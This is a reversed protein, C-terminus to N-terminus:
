KLPFPIYAGCIAPPGLGRTDTWAAWGATKTCDVATYDGIRRGRSDPYGNHPNLPVRSTFVPTTQQQELDWVAYNYTGNGLNQYAGALSPCNGASQLFKGTKADGLPTGKPNKTLKGISIQSRNNIADRWQWILQPHSKGPIVIAYPESLVLPSTSIRSCPGCDTVSVLNGVSTLTTKASWSIGDQSTAFWLEGNPLSVSPEFWTVAIESENGGVTCFAALPGALTKATSWLQGDDSYAVKLYSNQDDFNDTWCAVLRTYGNPGKMVTISPHDELEPGFRPASISPPAVLKTTAVTLNSAFGSDSRAVFVATLLVQNNPIPDDQLIDGLCSYFLEGQLGFRVWPDGLPTFGGPLALTGGATWTQGGDITEKWGCDVRTINGSGDTTFQNFGVVAHLPKTPDAALSPETSFGTFIPFESPPALPPPGHTVTLIVSLQQPNNTASASSISLTGLYTGAKLNSSATATLTAGTAGSSPTVSLWPGNAPNTSVTVSFTIAPGNSTVLVQQPTNGKGSGQQYNFSISQSCRPSTAPCASLTIPTYIAKPVLLSTQGAALTGTQDAPTIYKPVDGYHVKYNGV